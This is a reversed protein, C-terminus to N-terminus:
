VEIHVLLGYWFHLVVFSGFRVLFAVLFHHKTHHANCVTCVTHDFNKCSPLDCLLQVVLRSRACRARRAVSEGDLHRSRDLCTAAPTPTRLSLQQEEQASCTRRGPWGRRPPSRAGNIAAVQAVQNRRRTQSRQARVGADGRNRLRRRQRAPHPNARSAITANAQRGAIATAQRRHGPALNQRASVGAAGLEERRPRSM